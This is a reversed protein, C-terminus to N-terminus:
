ERTLREIKGKNRINGLSDVEFIPFGDADTYIVKDTGATDNLRITKGGGLPAFKGGGMFSM